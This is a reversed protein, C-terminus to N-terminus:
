HSISFTKYFCQTRLFLQLIFCKGCLNSRNKEHYLFAWCHSPSSEARAPVGSPRPLAGWDNQQLAHSSLLSAIQLQKDKYKFAEKSPHQARDLVGTHDPIRATKGPHGLKINSKSGEEKTSGWEGRSSQSCRLPLCQGRSSKEGSVATQEQAKAQTHKIFESM